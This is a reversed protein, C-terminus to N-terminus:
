AALMRSRQAASLRTACPRPPRARVVGQRLELTLKRASSHLGSLQSMARGRRRARGARGAVRSVFLMCASEVDRVESTCVRTAAADVRVAPMRATAVTRQSTRLGGSHRGFALQCGPVSQISASDM